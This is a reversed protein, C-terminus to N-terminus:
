SQNMQFSFLFLGLEVILQPMVHIYGIWAQRAIVPDGVPTSISFPESLTEPSVDLIVNDTVQMVGFIKKVEDIFNQPDEGVQSWLFEPPNMRVFNLVRDVLSGGNKNTPVPVQQNNENTM